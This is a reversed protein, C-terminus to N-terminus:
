AKKREDLKLYNAIISAIVNAGAVNPHLGDKQYLRELVEIPFGNFEEHMDILHCKCEKALKRITPLLKALYKEQHKKWICEMVPIPTVVYIRANKAAALKVTELITGYDEAFFEKLAMMNFLPDKKKLDDNYGDQADNTGLMVIYIDGKLSLAETYASDRVYPLGYVVGNVEHNIVCTSTRGKNFVEYDQGLLDGLAAPYTFNNNDIGFGETISDGMCVIKTKSTKNGM